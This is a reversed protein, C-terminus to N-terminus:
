ESPHHACQKKRNNEQRSTGTPRLFIRRHRLQSDFHRPSNARRGRCRFGARTAAGNRENGAVPDADALGQCAAAVHKKRIVAARPTRRGRHVPVVTGGRVGEISVIRVIRRILGVYHRHRHQRVLLYRRRDVNGAVHEHRPRLLLGIRRTGRYRENKCANETNCNLM